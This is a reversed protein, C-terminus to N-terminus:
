GLGSWCTFQEGKSTQPKIIMDGRVMASRVSPRESTYLQVLALVNVRGQWLGQFETHECWKSLLIELGSHGDISM